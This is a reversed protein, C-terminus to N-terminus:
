FRRGFSLGLQSRSISPVLWARRGPGGIERNRALEVAGVATTVLGGVVLVSGVVVEATTQTRARDEHQRVASEFSERDFGTGLMQVLSRAESYEADVVRRAEANSVIGDGLLGAGAATSGVGAAVLAVSPAWRRRRSPNIDARGRSHVLRFLGIAYTAAGGVLILTGGVVQATARSFVQDEYERVSAEFAERDFQGENGQELLDAEFRQARVFRQAELEFAVGAGLLTAGGAVGVVGTTLVAISIGRAKKAEKAEQARQEARRRAADQQRRRQERAEQEARRQEEIAVLRRDADELRFGIDALQRRVAAGEGSEDDEPRRDHWQGLLAKIVGLQEEVTELMRRDVEAGDGILRDYSEVHKSAVTRAIRAGASWHFDPGSLAGLATQYHGTAVDLQGAVLAAEAERLPELVTRIQEAGREVDTALETTSQPGAYELWRELVALGRELHVLRVDNEFAQRYYSSARIAAMAGVEGRRVEDPMGDLAKSRAEGAGAYDGADRRILALDEWCEYDELSCESDQNSAGLPVRPALGKGHAPTMEGSFAVVALAWSALTVLTPCSHIM